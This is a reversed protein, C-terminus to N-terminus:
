RKYQLSVLAILLLAVMTVVITFGPIEKSDIVISTDTPTVVLTSVPAPTSTPPVITDVTVATVSPTATEIPSVIITQNQCRGCEKLHVSYVGPESFTYNFKQYNWRLYADRNGWLGQNSIITLPWDPTADNIWIVNDGVNINITKNVYSINKIITSTPQTETAIKPDTATVRYFGYDQDVDSKYTTASTLTVFFALTLLVSLGAFIILSTFKRM